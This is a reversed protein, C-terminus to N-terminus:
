GGGGAAGLRRLSLTGLFTGSDGALEARYAVIYWRLASVADPNLVPDVVAIRDGKQLAPNGIIGVDLSEGFRDLQALMDAAIGDAAAQSIIAPLSVMLTRHEQFGTLALLDAEFAADIADGSVDYSTDSSTSTTYKWVHGSGVVYLETGTDADYEGGWMQPASKITRIIVSPASEDVVYSRGAEYFVTIETGLIGLGTPNKHGGISTGADPTVATKDFRWLQDTDYDTLWIYSASVKMDSWRGNPLAYSAILANSSADFKHLRNGTRRGTSPGGTFAWPADLVYYRDADSPDGSLGLPYRVTGGIYVSGLSSGDAQAMVHIRRTHSDLVRLETPSGPVYWAGVPHAIGTEGADYNFVEDWADVTTTVTMPGTVHVRTFTHDDDDEHELVLVDTGTAYTYDPSADSIDGAKFYYAGLEDAQSRFGPVLDALRSIASAFPEGDNGRFEDVTLGTADVTIGGPFPDGAKSLLDTVIDEVAMNLYVFNSPDRIPDVALPDIPALPDFPPLPDQPAILVIRQVILKKMWDRISLTVTHPHRRIPVRDVLGSFVRVQNAVDGYWAFVRCPTDPSITGPVINHESDDIEVECRDSDTELSKDWSVRILRYAATAAGGNITVAIQDFDVASSGLAWGVTGAPAVFPGVSFYTWTDGHNSGDSLDHSALIYTPDAPLGPSNPAGYFGLALPTFENRTWGSVSIVDGPSAAKLAMKNPNSGGKNYYRNSADAGPPGQNSAIAWGIDDGGDSDANFNFSATGASVLELRARFGDAGAQFHSKLIALLDDTITQM